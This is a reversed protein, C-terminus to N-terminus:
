PLLTQWGGQPDDYVQEDESTLDLKFGRASIVEDCGEIENFLEWYRGAYQCLTEDNRKQLIILSDIEKAHTLFGRPKPPISESKQPTHERRVWRNNELTTTCRLARM